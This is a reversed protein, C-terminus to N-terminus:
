ETHILEGSETIAAPEAALAERHAKAILNLEITRDCAENVDGAPIRKERVMRSLFDAAGQCQESAREHTM